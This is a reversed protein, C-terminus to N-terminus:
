FTMSRDIRLQPQDAAVLTWDWPKWSNKKWQFSFPESMGELEAVAYAAIPGGTGQLKLRIRVTARGDAVSCDRLDRQITLALFQRLVESSDALLSSKDHGWRDGYHPDIFAAFARWDRKEAADLLHEQHLLVQREPQWLWLCRLLGIAALLGLIPRALNHKLMRQIFDFIM